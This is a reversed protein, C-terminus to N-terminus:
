AEDEEAAAVAITKILSDEGLTDAIEKPSDGHQFLRSLLICADMVIAHLDSGAKFDACFVEAVRFKSETGVSEGVSIETLEVKFGFTVLIHAPKGSMMISLKRTLAPRKEPLKNRAMM